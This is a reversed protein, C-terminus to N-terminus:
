LGLGFVLGLVGALCWWWWGHLGIRGAGSKYYLVGPASCMYAGGDAYGRRGYSARMGLSGPRPCNFGLKAPCMRVLDYCLDECPLVEMYPGPQIMGAITDNMRSSNTALWALHAPRGPMSANGMDHFPAPVNADDLPKQALNRPMLYSTGPVNASNPDFGSLADGQGAPSAVDDNDDDDDDNTDKSSGGFPSGTGNGLFKVLNGKRSYRSFDACKPISVTCLWTKYADSCNKCGAALSYQATPTTNCPIQQLSYTFNKFLRAAQDDYLDRLKTSNYGRDPNAPVAYNVEHCFTLNYIVACNADRKTTFNMSPYLTGGGNRVNDGYTSANLTSPRGIYTATRNLNSVYFQEEALGGPQNHTIGIEFPSEPNASSRTNSLVTPLKSLACYSRSLGRVATENINNVFLDLPPGKTLFEEPDDTDQERKVWDTLGNTVLLAATSDSDVMYLGFETDDKFEHYPAHTSVAIDYNWDQSDKKLRSKPASVRFYVTDDAPVDIRGYGEVLPVTQSGSPTDDSTERPDQRQAHLTLQPPDQSDDKSRFTPQLCVNITIFIRKSQGQNRQRKELSPDLGDNQDDHGEELNSDEGNAWPATRKEPSSTPGAKFSYWTTSGPQINLNDKRDNVTDEVQIDKRRPPDARVVLSDYDDSGRSSDRAIHYHGSQAHNLPSSPAHSLDHNTTPANRGANLTTDDNSTSASANTSAFTLFSILVSTLVLCFSERPRKHRLHM